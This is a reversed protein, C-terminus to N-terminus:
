KVMKGDVGPLYRAESYDKIQKKELRFDQCLSLYALALALLTYGSTILQGAMSKVIIVALPICNLIRIKKSYKKSELIMMVILSGVMILGPIGWAVIIEQISNHPVVDAVNYINIAKLPLNNAGVGFLMVKENASIFRHYQVILNNRDTFIDDGFFRGIYYELVDPFIWYLLLLSIVSFILLVGVFRIKQKISGNYGVVLLFFMLLLCVLFTRSSTLVGITILLVISIYDTKKHKGVSHLQFLASASVINIVGLINPHIAGGNLIDEESLHGLRKLNSFAVTFNFNANVICNGLLMLGVLIASIAVSRIIFAYDIDSMDCSLFVALFVFPIVSTIMLKLDFGVMFFHLIEWVVILICLVVIPGIRIQHFAKVILIVSCVALTIYLDIAEHLPICCMLIAIIEDRNGLAAIAIVVATLLIGPINIGFSYRVFVLGLLLTLLCGFVLHSSKKIQVVM